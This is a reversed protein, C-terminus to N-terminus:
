LGPELRTMVLRELLESRERRQAEGGQNCMVSEAVTYGYLIFARSRAEAPDFGLAVFCQATFSLRRADVEDVARRAMADRRAWARIALEIRAARQAARGRFPLSVLDRLLDQPAARSREFREIVQETAANRWAELLSALLDDRDKFHWYFSGRTVGLNKAVVDVRVADVGHDVLLTTAAEIWREPTLSARPSEEAGPAARRSAPAKATAPAEPM